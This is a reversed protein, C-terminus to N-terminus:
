VHSSSLWCVLTHASLVGWCPEAESGAPLPGLRPGLMGALLLPIGSRGGGRERSDRLMRSGPDRLCMASKAQLHRTHFTNKSMLKCIWLNKALLLYIVAKGPCWQEKESYGSVIIRSYIDFERGVLQMESYLYNKFEEERLKLVKLVLSKLM